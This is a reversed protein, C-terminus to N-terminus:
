NDGTAAKGKLSFRPEEGKLIRVINPKHRQVILLAIGVIPLLTRTPLGFWIAAVPVALAASISAISVTRFLLFVAAFAGLACGGLLPSVVTIAGLSTAVGKGGKSFGPISFCHGCVALMGALAAGGIDQFFWYGLWASLMGKLVDGGLTILGAGAGVSRAVNTAGVNGSGTKEIDIGRARAVLRGVPVSGLIYSFFLILIKMLM